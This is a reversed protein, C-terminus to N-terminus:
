VRRLGYGSSLMILISDIATGVELLSPLKRIAQLERSAHVKPIPDLLQVACEGCHAGSYTSYPMLMAFPTGVEGKNLAQGDAYNYAFMACKATLIMQATTFDLTWGLYDTYLRYIHSIM